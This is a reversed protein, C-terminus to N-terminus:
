IFDNSLIMTTLNEFNQFLDSLGGRGGSIFCDMSVRSDIMNQLSSKAFYIFTSANKFNKCKNEINHM